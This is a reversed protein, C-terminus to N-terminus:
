KWLYTFIYALTILAFIGVAISTIGIWWICFIVPILVLGMKAINSRVSDMDTKKEVSSRLNKLEDSM